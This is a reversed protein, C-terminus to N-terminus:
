SLSLSGVTQSLSVDYAICGVVATTLDLLTAELDLHQGSKAYQLLTSRTQTYTSPLVDEILTDLNAGTFFKLGAKRQTKWLEGDANIIGNGSFRDAIFEVRSEKSACRFSGM